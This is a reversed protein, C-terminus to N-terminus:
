PPAITERNQSEILQAEDQSGMKELPVAHELFVARQELPPRAGHCFAVLTPVEEHSCAHGFGAKRVNCAFASKETLWKARENL